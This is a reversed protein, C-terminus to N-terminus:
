ARRFSRVCWRPGGIRSRTAHAGRQYQWGCRSVISSWGSFPPGPMTANGAAVGPVTRLLVTLIAANQTPRTIRVGTIQLAETRAAQSASPVRFRKAVPPLADCAAIKIGGKIQDLGYRAGHKRRRRLRDLGVYLYSAKRRRWSAMRLMGGLLVHRRSLKRRGATSRQRQPDAQEQLDALAQLRLPGDDNVTRVPLTAWRMQFEAAQHDAFLARRRHSRRRLHRNAFCSGGQDLRMGARNFHAFYLLAHPAQGIEDMCWACSRLRNRGAAGRRPRNHLEKGNRRCRAVDISRTPLTVPAPPVAVGPTNGFYLHAGGRPTRVILSASWVARALGMPSPDGCNGGPQRGHPPRHSYGYCARRWGQCRQPRKGGGRTLRTASQAQPSSVVRSPRDSARRASQCSPIDLPPTTIKLSTTKGRKAATPGRSGSRRIKRHERGHLNARAHLWYNYIAPGDPGRPGRHPPEHNWRGVCLCGSGCRERNSRDM